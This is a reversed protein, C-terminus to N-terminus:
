SCTSSQPNKTLQRCCTKRSCVFHENEANGREATILLVHQGGMLLLTVHFHTQTHPHICGNPREFLPVQMGSVYWKFINAAWMRIECWVKLDPQLVVKAYLRNIMIIKIKLVGQQATEWRYTKYLFKTHTRAKARSKPQACVARQTFVENADPPPSPRVGRHTHAHARRSAHTQTHTSQHPWLLTGPRSVVEQRGSEGGSGNRREMAWNWGRKIQCCLRLLVPARTVLPCQEDEFSAVWAAKQRERWRTEKSQGREQRRRAQEAEGGQLKTKMNVKEAERTKWESM